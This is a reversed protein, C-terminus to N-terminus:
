PGKFASVDWLRVTGDRGGSALSKGDPTFAVTYVTGTHRTFTRLERGSAVDWLKISGSRSGTALHSGSGKPSWSISNIFGQDTTVAGVNALSASEWVNAM